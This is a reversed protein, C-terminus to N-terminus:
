TLLLLSSHTYPMHGRPTPAACPTCFHMVHWRAFPAPQPQQVHEHRRRHPRVQCPSATGFRVRRMSFDFVVRPNPPSPVDQRSLPMAQRLLLRPTACHVCCFPPNDESVLCRVLVLPLSRLLYCGASTYVPSSMGSQTRARPEVFPAFPLPHTHPALFDLM